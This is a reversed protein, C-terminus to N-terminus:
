VASNSVSSEQGWIRIKARSGKSVGTDLRIVKGIFLLEAAVNVLM